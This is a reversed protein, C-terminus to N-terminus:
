EQRFTQALCRKTLDDLDKSAQAKAGSAAALVQMMAEIYATESWSRMGDRVCNCYVARKPNKDGGMCNQYDRNLIDDSLAAARAPPVSLVFLLAGLFLLLLGKAYGARVLSRPLLLQRPKLVSAKGAGLLGGESHLLEGDSNPNPLLDNV